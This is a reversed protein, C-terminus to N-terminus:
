LAVRGRVPIRRSAAAGHPPPRAERSRARRQRRRGLPRGGRALERFCLQRATRRQPKPHPLSSALLLQPGEPDQRDDVAEPWISSFPTSRACSRSYSTCCSRLRTRSGPAPPMLWIFPRISITAWAISSAVCPPSSPLFLRHLLRRSGPTTSPSF